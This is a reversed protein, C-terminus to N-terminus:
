LLLFVILLWCSLLSKLIISWPTSWEFMQPFSFLSQMLHSFKCHLVNKSRRISMYAECVSDFSSVPSHWASTTELYLWLGFYLGFIYDFDKPHKTSRKWCPLSKKHEFENTIACVWVTGCSYFCCNSAVISLKPWMYLIIEMILVQINKIFSICHKPIATPMRKGSTHSETDVLHPPKMHIIYISNESPPWRISLPHLHVKM